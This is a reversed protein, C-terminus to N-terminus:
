GRARPTVRWAARGTEQRGGGRAPMRRGARIEPSEVVAVARGAGLDIAQEVPPAPLALSPGFGLLSALVEEADRYAAQEGDRLRGVAALASAKLRAAAGALASTGVTDLADAAWLLRGAADREAADIKLLISESM